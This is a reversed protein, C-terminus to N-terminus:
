SGASRPWGSMPLGYKKALQFMPETWVEQYLMERDYTVTQYAMALDYRGPVWLELICGHVRIIWPISKFRPNRLQARGGRGCGTTRGWRKGAGKPSLSKWLRM